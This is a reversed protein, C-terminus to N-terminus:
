WSKEEWFYDFKSAIERNDLVRRPNFCTLEKFKADGVIKRLKKYAKELQKPDSPYHSDTAVFSVLDKKLLWKCIRKATRGYKGTLSEINCQLLCNFELLEKIRKKDKQIFRYREPHAIIPVIGYDALDCLVNPFNRYYSSLPLEVLMYKSNNITCIEHEEYLKIVDDCLYVENGIYLNIDEDVYKKLEELIKERVLVNFKYSTGKVYHSTLVFDKIGVKNLYKIIKISDDITKAGDDVGPLIHTHIDIIKNDMTVEMTIVMTIVM